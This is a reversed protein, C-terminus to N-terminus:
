GLGMVWWRDMLGDVVVADILGVSWRDWVWWMSWWDMLGDVVVAGILGVLWRDMLLWLVLWVWWGLLGMLVSWFDFKAGDVVLGLWWWAFGGCCRSAVVLFFGCFFWWRDQQQQDLFGDVMVAFGGHWCVSFLSISLFYLLSLILWGSYFLTNPNLITSCHLEVKLIANYLNGKSMANANGLALARLITLFTMLCIRSFSCIWMFIYSKLIIKTNVKQLFSKKKLFSNM